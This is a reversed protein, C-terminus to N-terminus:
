LKIEVYFSRVRLDLNTRPEVSYCRKHVTAAERNWNPSAAADGEECKPQKPRANRSSNFLHDPKYVRLARRSLESFQVRCLHRPVRSVRGSAPLLSRSLMPTEHARNSVYARKKIWSHLPIETSIARGYWCLGVIVRKDEKFCITM